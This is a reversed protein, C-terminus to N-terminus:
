ATVRARPRLSSRGQDGRRSTPLLLAFYARGRRRFWSGCHRPDEGAGKGVDVEGLHRDGGEDEAVHGGLRVLHGDDVSGRAAAVGVPLEIPRDEFRGATECGAPEPLTVDEGDHRRIDGLVGDCEVGNGGEAADDGRDIGGVRCLLHLVLEVVCAGPEEERDGHEELGGTLRRRVTPDLLDEHEALGFAGGGEDRQEAGVGHLLCRDVCAVVEDHEGVRASRGAEGFAHHQRM